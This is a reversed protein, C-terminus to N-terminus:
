VLKRKVMENYCRELALVDELANHAEFEEEFLKTYLRSLTPWKNSFLKAAALKMVDVRKEKGLAKDVEEGYVNGILRLANAKIISTDFYTNFGIVKECKVLDAMLEKMVHQFDYPSKRLDATTIGHIASAEKPITVTKSHVVRHLASSAGSKEVLKWGISVVYPFDNFDVRWDSNKPPLGTTETDLFLLAM